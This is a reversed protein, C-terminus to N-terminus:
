ARRQPINHKRMKTYLTPRRLGLLAAAAQKNWRTTELARLISAREIEELSGAPVDSAALGTSTTRLADPLDALTLEPGRAVLVAHEIAHQLERVNGPWSYALLRRYAEADIGDIARAHRSRYRDLFARVLVPIDEARERLPPIAITVTNIRFYLDQRLQGEKVAHEPNRNTSSIVRFDSSISKGSGIRRFTHDELVRLLKAQLDVPMETIEDLLLSGHHAEELLGVKDITAGTFAGKVHGFLESEILDKPLAACNIKVWPGDRRASREHVANAVLEKGTGSEGVILVNAESSAVAELIEFVRRMAPASGLIESDAVQEALRRRLELTEALLKRRELAKAARALLEDADFPKPVFDFAGEKIAEIAKSISSHATIIIVELAPDRSRLEKVLRLGDGDPLVMDVVAVHFEQEAAAALAAAVSAALRVTYGEAGLVMRLGDAITPEDDVVLVRASRV